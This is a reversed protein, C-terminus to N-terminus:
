RSVGIASFAIDSRIARVVERHSTADLNQKVAPHYQNAGAVFTPGAGCIPCHHRMASTWVYSCVECTVMPDIMRM